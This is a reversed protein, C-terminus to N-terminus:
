HDAHKQEQRYREWYSKARAIDRQQLRKDGGCLLIVRRPGDQGFYVRYGPGYDVKLELVGDGVSKAIGLNGLRLRAIRAEIKQRARDDRLATLWDLFPTKGDSTRYVRVEREIADM